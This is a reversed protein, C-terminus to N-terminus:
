WQLYQNHKTLWAKAKKFEPFFQGVLAWFKASHNLFRLHCLEHIIVYDIVWPPTMVLLYNFSLEGRNNCSGWRSKYKKIQYSKPVLATIASFNDLNDELYKTAQQKYFSELIKKIELSHKEPSEGCLRQPLTIFFEDGQHKISKKKSFCLNITTAQGWFYVTGGQVFKEKISPISKQLNIKEKLWASKRQVFDNIFTAEVFDPARVIVEGNKVQLGITKRRNTRILQYQM